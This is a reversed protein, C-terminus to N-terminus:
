VYSERDIDDMSGGFPMDGKWRSLKGQEELKASVHEQLAYFRELGPGIGVGGVHAWAIDDRGELAALASEFLGDARHEGNEFQVVFRYLFLDNGRVRLRM